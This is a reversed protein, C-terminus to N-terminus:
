SYFCTFSRGLNLWRPIGGDDIGGDDCQMRRGLVQWPPEYCGSGKGRVRQVYWLSFDDCKCTWSKMIKEMLFCIGFGMCLFFLFFCCKRRGWGECELRFCFVMLYFFCLVSERYGVSAGCVCLVRRMMAFWLTVFDLGGRREKDVVRMGVRYGWVM